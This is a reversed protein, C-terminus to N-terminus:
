QYFRGTKECKGCYDYPEDADKRCTQDKWNGDRGFTERLTHIGLAWLVLNMWCTDPKRDLLDAIMFRIWEM